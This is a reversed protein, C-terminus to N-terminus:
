LLCKETRAALLQDADDLISALKSHAISQSRQWGVNRAASRTRDFPGNIELDTPLCLVLGPWKHCFL